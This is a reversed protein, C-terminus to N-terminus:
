GTLKDSKSKKLVDSCKAWVAEDWGNLKSPVQSAAVGAKKPRKVMKKADYTRQLPMEQKKM